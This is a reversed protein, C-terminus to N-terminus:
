SNIPASELSGNAHGIIQYRPKSGAKGILINFPVIDGSTSIIIQPKPNQADAILPVERNRLKVTIQIDDPIRRSGLITDIPTGWPNHEAKTKDAFQYFQFSHPSFGLGLVTSQLLSEEEALSLMSTIQKALNQYRSMQNRSISLIGVAGVISVILMVILVEILTFGILPKLKKMWM